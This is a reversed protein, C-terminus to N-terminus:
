RSMLEDVTFDPNDEFDFESLASFDVAYHKGDIEMPLPQFSQPDGTPGHESWVVKLASKKLPNYEYVISNLDYLTEAGVPLSGLHNIFHQELSVPKSEAVVQEIFKKTLRKVSTEANEEKKTVMLRDHKRVKYKGVRSPMDFYSHLDLPKQTISNLEDLFQMYFRLLTHRGTKRENALEDATDPLTYQNFNNRLKGFPGVIGLGLVVVFDPRLNIDDLESDLQKVQKAIASLSRNAAYAFIATVPTVPDLGVQIGPNPSHSFNEKSAIRKLSVINQYADKLEESGLHSKMSIAGFVSEIPYLSHSPSKLFLPCHDKDYIVIDLEGSVDNNSSIVEGRGTGYKNPLYDCLFDVFAEERNDGKGGNHKIQVSKQFKATLELSVSEFIKRLDM